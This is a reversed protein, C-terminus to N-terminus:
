QIWIAWSLSWQCATVINMNVVM